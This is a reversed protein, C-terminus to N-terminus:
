DNTKEKRWNFLYTMGLTQAVVPQTNFVCVLIIFIAVTKIIDNESYEKSRKYLRIIYYSLFVVGTSAAFNAMGNSRSGELISNWANDYDNCIGTGLFFNDFAIEYGQTTDDMRVGYSGGQNIVKTEIIGYSSEVYWFGIVMCVVVLLIIPKKIVEGSTINKIIVVSILVVCCIMGTGSQTTMLAIFLCGMKGINKHSFLDNEDTILFIMGLILAISFMGAEGYPGTNRNYNLSNQKIQYYFTGYYNPDGYTGTFPLTFTSFTTILFCIISIGAIICIIDVYKKKFTQLAMNSQIVALSFWRIIYIIVNNILLPYPKILLTISEDILMFLLLSILAKWNNTCIIRYKYIYTMAILLLILMSPIMYIYNLVVFGSSVIIWLVTFYEFMENKEIRIM